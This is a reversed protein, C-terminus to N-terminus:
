KGIKAWEKSESGEGDDWAEVTGDEFVRYLRVIKENLRQTTLGMCKGKASRTEARAESCSPAAGPKLAVAALVMVLALGVALLAKGSM